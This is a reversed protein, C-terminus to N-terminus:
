PCCVTVIPVLRFDLKRRIKTEEDETWTLEANGGEGFFEQKDSTSPSASNIEHQTPDSFDNKKLASDMAPTEESVSRM